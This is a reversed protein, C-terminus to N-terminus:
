RRAVLWAGSLALCLALALLWRPDLTPIENLALTPTFLVRLEPQVGPDTNERSDFRKATTPVSEDGVLIWGFNTAPADVWSQVDAALGAAPGWTYPGLGGVAITASPAAVFDGGTTDWPETNYTAFGWNVDGISAAEGQGEEGPPDTPGETWATTVRHLSVDEAGAISRSMNLTLEVSDITSGPPIAGLDFRLLARRALEDTQTNGAFLHDGTGNAPSPGPGIIPPIFPPSMYITADATPQLILEGASAATAGFAACFIACVASGLLPLVLLSAALRPPRPTM